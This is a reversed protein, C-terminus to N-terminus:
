RLPADTEEVLEVEVLKGMYCWYQDNSTWGFRLGHEADNALCKRVSAEPDTYGVCRFLDGPKLERALM